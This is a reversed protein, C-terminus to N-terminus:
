KKIQAKIYKVLIEMKVKHIQRSNRILAQDQHINLDIKNEKLLLDISPVKKFNLYAEDISKAHVDPCIKKFVKMFKKNIYRYKPPDALVLKIDKCIKKAELVRTGTKIGLAKAQYSAALIASHDNLYPVVGVPKGRLLPNEQQECSAFYSNMDIHMILPLEKNIGLNNTLNPKYYPM